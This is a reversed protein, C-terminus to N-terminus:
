NLPPKDRINQPCQVPTSLSPVAASVPVFPKIPLPKPKTPGPAIIIPSAAPLSNLYAPWAALVTDAFKKLQSYDDGWSTYMLGLVGPIGSAQAMEDRASGAGDGSDYYGAIIQQHAVPQDPNQGSFWTLSNALNGLNWNMMIVNPPLATWSGSLDGEVYYYHDHANHSPDFMDSWVYLPSNPMVSHIRQISQSVSWGLLQAPTMNKARCTACSNMQRMEDYGMLIGAGSPLVNSVAQANQALYALVGPETICMDTGWAGPIPFAAYFDIAVVKGPSLRSGAPLTVVPPTHYSDYFPTPTSTMRPDTIYDYDTGENYTTNPNNPDYVRLPTGARGRTVYVLATEEVQIDDIWLSGAEGGWVGMYLWLATSDQSNFSYDYQTWDQTISAHITDQARFIDFNAPDLFEFQAYAGYDQTKAFFRLHYQRWPKVQILQRIRGNHPVSRILASNGGTHAVTPDLRVGPDGIDFWDVAGSEFGSNSLGSSSNILQLQKGTSNVRFQTGIVRQAEAWNPNNELIDNSYGFSEMPAIVKMGKSVAYDVAQKLYQQYSPSWLRSNLFEFSVDWFAVGTYGDAFAQDILTKSSQVAQASNLLSHHWYWLQPKPGQAAVPLTFATLVCWHGLSRLHKNM